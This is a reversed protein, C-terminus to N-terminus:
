EKSGKVLDKGIDYARLTKATLPLILNFMTGFSLEALLNPVGFCVKEILGKGKVFNDTLSDKLLDYELGLYM